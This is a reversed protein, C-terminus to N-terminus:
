NKFLGSILFCESIISAAPSRPNAAQVPSSSSLTVERSFRSSLHIVVDIGDFGENLGIGFGYCDIGNCSGVIAIDDFEAVPSGSGDGITLIACRALVALVSCGALVTLVSCSRLNAYLFNVANEVPCYVSFEEFEISFVDTYGAIVALVSCRTLSALVSFIADSRM